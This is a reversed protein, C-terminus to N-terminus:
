LWRCRWALWLKRLATLDVKQELLRGGEAITENLRQETLYAYCYIPGRNQAGHRLAANLQIAAASLEENLFKQCASAERANFFSDGDLGHQALKDSPLRCLNATLLDRLRLLSRAEELRVALEVDNGILEYLNAYADRLRQSRETDSCPPTAGFEHDMSESLDGVARHLRDPAIGLEGAIEFVPHKVRSDRDQWWALKLRAVGPDSVKLPIDEIITKLTLICWARYRYPSPAFRTAYYEDSGVGVGTTAAEHQLRTIISQDM